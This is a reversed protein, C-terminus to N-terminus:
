ARSSHLFVGPSYWYNISIECLMCLRQSRTRTALTRALLCTEPATQNSGHKARCILGDCSTKNLLYKLPCNVNAETSGLTYCCLRSGVCWRTAAPPHVGQHKGHNAPTAFM